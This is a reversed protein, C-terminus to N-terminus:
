AVSASREKEGDLMLISRVFRRNNMPQRLLTIATM